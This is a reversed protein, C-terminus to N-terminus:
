FWSAEHRDAPIISKMAISVRSLDSDEYGAYVCGFTGTGMLPGKFCSSRCKDWSQLSDIFEQQSKLPVEELMGAM